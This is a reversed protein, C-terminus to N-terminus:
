EFSKDLDRYPYIWVRPIFQYCSPPLPKQEEDDPNIIPRVAVVDWYWDNDDEIYEEFTDYFALDLNLDDNKKRAEFDERMLEVSGKGIIEVPVLAKCSSFLQALAKSGVPPIEEKLYKEGKPNHDGYTFKTTPTLDSSFVQLRNPYMDEEEELEIAIVRGPAYRTHNLVFLADKKDNTIIPQREDVKWWKENGIKEGPVEYAIITVTWPDSYRSDIFKFGDGDNMLVVPWNDSFIKAFREPNDTHIPIVAHPRLMEFLHDLSEMDCHGSTHRYLWDKGLSKALSQNFAPSDPTDVYGKWMSLYTQKDEDDPLKEILNDFRTNARALLVYGKEKMFDLFKDKVLFEGRNDNDYMLVMPEEAEYKYMRSKGWIPDRGVVADMINKQHRDVIFKRGAKLAAHYLAFIRDINTTSLYVVNYKHAKFDDIMNLQLDHETQIGAQPRNVNTAECVVYDVRGIYQEIVKPLKKGRFGHTRFDGTHFVSGGDAEIKFAYADFASHDMIIPMITFPGFEFAKGAEFPIASELRKLLRAHHEQVGKLHDSTIRQIDLGIKGMFVPVDDPIKDLNGIHDGHYHTILLASKSRDGKTLSEIEPISTSTAGPLQEGFDVFLKWGDHEYETVSGGIQDTGSHITIKM